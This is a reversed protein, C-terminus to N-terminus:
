KPRHTQTRVKGIDWAAKQKNLDERRDKGHDDTAQGLRARARGMM